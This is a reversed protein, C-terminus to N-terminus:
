HLYSRRSRRVAPAPDGQPTRGAGAFHPRCIAQSPSLRHDHAQEHGGTHDYDDPERAPPRACVAPSPAGYPGSQHGHHRLSRPPGSTALVLPSPAEIDFPPASGLVHPSPSLGAWRIAWPEPSTRGRVRSCEPVEPRAAAMQPMPWIGNPSVRASPQYFRLGKPLRWAYLSPLPAFSM